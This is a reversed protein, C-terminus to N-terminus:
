SVHETDREPWAPVSVHMIPRPHWLHDWNPGTGKAGQPFTIVFQGLLFLYMIPIHTEKAGQSFAIVCTDGARIQGRTVPPASAALLARAHGVPPAQFLRAAVQLM